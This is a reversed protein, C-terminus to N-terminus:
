QETSCSKRDSDFHREHRTGSPAAPWSIGSTAKEEEKVEEEGRCGSQREREEKRGEEM